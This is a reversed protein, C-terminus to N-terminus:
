LNRARPIRGIVMENDVRIYEECVVGCSCIIPGRQQQALVRKQCGIWHWSSKSIYTAIFKCRCNLCGCKHKIHVTQHMVNDIIERNIIQYFHIRDPQFMAFVDDFSWGDHIQEIDRLNEFLLDNGFPRLIHCAASLFNGIEVHQRDNVFLELARAIM